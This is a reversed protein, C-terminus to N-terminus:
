AQPNCQEWTHFDIRLSKTTLSPMYQLVGVRLAVETRGLLGAFEDQTQLSGFGHLFDPLLEDIAMRLIRGALFLNDLYQGLQM